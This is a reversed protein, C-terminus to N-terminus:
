RPEPPPTSTALVPAPQTAPLRELADVAQVFAAYRVAQGTGATLVRYATAGLLAEAAAAHAPDALDVGHRHLRQTAVRRLRQLAAGHVRGHDARMRWGLQRVDRRTGDATLSWRGRWQEGGSAFQQVEAVGRGAAVALVCVFIVASQRPTVGIAWALFAVLLAAMASIGLSPM